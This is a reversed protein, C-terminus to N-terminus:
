KSKAPPLRTMQHKAAGVKVYSKSYVSEGDQNKGLDVAIIERGIERSDIHVGLEIKTNPLNHTVVLKGGSFGAMAEVLPTINKAGTSGLKGDATKINEAIRPLAETFYELTSGWGGIGGYNGFTETMSRSLSAIPIMEQMMKLMNPLNKAVKLFPASQMLKGVGSGSMSNALKYIIGGKKETGGSASLMDSVSTTFVELKGADIKAPQLQVLIDSLSSMIKVLKEIGKMKGLTNRGLNPVGKIGKILAFVPGTDKAFLKTVVTKLNDVQIWVDKTAKPDIWRRDRVKTPKLAGGIKTLQEVLELSTGLAGIKEKYKVADKIAPDDLIPKLGRFLASVAKGAAEAFGEVGDTFKKLEGVNLRLGKQRGISKGEDDVQGPLKKFTNLLVPILGTVSEIIKAAGLIAEPKVKGLYTKVTSLIKNIMINLSAGVNEIATPLDTKIFKLTEGHSWIKEFDSSNASTKEIAATIPGMISSVMTLAATILGTTAVVSKIQAETLKSAPGTIIKDFATGVEEMIDVVVGKIASLLDKIDNEKMGFRKMIAASKSIDGVALVLPTFSKSVMVFIKVKKEMSEADKVAADIGKLIGPMYLQTAIMIGSIAAIGAVLGIPNLSALSIVGIALAIALAGKAVAEFAKAGKLMAGPGPIEAVSKLFAAAAEALAPMAVTAVISIIVAGLLIGAAGIGKTLVVFGGIAASLLALATVATVMVPVSIVFAVLGKMSVDKFRNILNPLVYALGILAGATITMVAAAWAIEKWSTTKLLRAAVAFSATIASLAGAVAVMSLGFSTATAPKINEYMPIITSFLVALGALAVGLTAVIFVMISAAKAVQNMNIENFAEVIGKLGKGISAASEPSGGRRRLGGPPGSSLGAAVKAMLAKMGVSIAATVFGGVLQVVISQAFKMVFISAMIVGLGALYPWVKKFAEAFLDILADGLKPANEKFSEYIPLLLNGAFGGLEGFDAGHAIMEILSTLGKVAIETLKGFAEGLLKGLATTFKDIGLNLKKLANGGGLVDDFTKTIDDFFESFSGGEFLKKFAKVGANSFEQIKKPDLMENFIKLIDKAGPFVEVFMEGVQRGMLWISDFAARLKYLMSKMDKARLLGAGFGSIFAEFFGGVKDRDILHNLQKIHKGLDKLVQKQSKQQKMALKAQKEINEYSTGQKDLSFAAELNAGELGTQQSLYQRQQYTMTSLDKGAAFFSKRLMDIKKAPNQEAMLKMADINMGFGQALRSAAQATDSFGSFKSMTGSLQKVEIGLKKAYVVMPAFAKPGLHGFTGVEENLEAMGHSMSKIDIGFSKGTQLAIKAFETMTGAVDKGRIEALNMLKAMSESSISLGKQMMALQFGSEKFTGKLRTFAEGTAKALDAVTKLAEALGEQGFGFTKVLSLGTGALNSTNKQIAKLQGAVAKGAKGSLNGFGEHIDELANVLALSRPLNEAVEALADFMKFPVSLIAIGLKGVSAVINFISTGFAMTTKAASSFAKGLGKLVTKLNKVAQANQKLKEAAAKNAEALKKSANAAEETKETASAMADKVANVAKEAEKLGEGSLANRIKIVLDLQTVLIKTHSNYLATREVLVANIQQQIQLQPSLDDAM